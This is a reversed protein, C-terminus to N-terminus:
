SIYESMRDALRENFDDPKVIGSVGYYPEDISLHEGVESLYLSIIDEPYITETIDYKYGNDEDAGSWDIEREELVSVYSFLKSYPIKFELFHRKEQKEEGTKKDRVKVDKEVWKSDGLLETVPKTVLKWYEGEDADRQADESAIVILDRVQSLESESEFDSYNDLVTGLDSTTEVTIKGDLLESLKQKDSESTISKNIYDTIEKLNEKNIDSVNGSIDNFSYDYGYFDLEYNVISKVKDEDKGFLGALWDDTWERLRILVGDSDWKDNTAIPATKLRDYDKFKLVAYLSKFDEKDKNYLDHALKDGVQKILKIEKFLEKKNEILQLLQEESFGIEDIKQSELYDWDGSVEKDIIYQKQEDTLNVLKSFDLNQLDDGHNRFLDWILDSSVDDRYTFGISIFRVPYKELINKLQEQTLNVDVLLNFINTRSLEETNIIKSISEPSLKRLMELKERSNLNMSNLVYTPFQVFLNNFQEPSFQIRSINQGVLLIPKKKILEYVVSPELDFLMFNDQIRYDWYNFGRVFESLLLKIIYPHYEAKPKTNARGRLQRVSGNPMIDATIFPEGKKRLSFLNDEGRGCHGMAQGEKTCVNTGLNIWYYGDPFKIVIEGDEDTIQGGQHQALVQHWAEARQKAHELTLIRFNIKDNEQAPPNNRGQLWDVVYRYDGSMQIMFRDVLKKLAPQVKGSELNKIMEDRIEEPFAQKIFEKKFSDAIWVSFKESISHAWDAVYQPLRLSQVITSRNDVEILIGALENLRKKYSESLNM